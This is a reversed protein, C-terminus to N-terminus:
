FFQTEQNTPPKQTMAHMFYKVSEICYALFAESRILDDYINPVLFRAMERAFQGNQVHETVRAITQDWLEAAITDGYQQAKTYVWDQRPTAGKQRCFALDFIDRVRLFKKQVALALTKDAAIEDLTQVPVLVRPATQLNQWPTILPLVERTMSPIQAFDIKIHQSPESKNLATQVVIQWSRVTVHRPKTQKSPRTPISVRSMLGFSDSLAKDLREAFEALHTDSFDSVAFNLDESLRPNGYFLRLCTGGQFQMTPLAPLNLLVELIVPHLLEKGVMWKVADARTGYPELARALAEHYRTHETHPQSSPM